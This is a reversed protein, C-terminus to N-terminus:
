DAGKDSPDSSSCPLLQFKAPSGPGEDEDMNVGAELLGPQPWYLVRELAMLIKLLVLSRILAFSALPLTGLM